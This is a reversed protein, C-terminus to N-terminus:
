NASRSFRIVSVYARTMLDASSGPLRRAAREWAERRGSAAPLVSALGTAATSAAPVGAALGLLDLDEAALGLGAALTGRLAADVPAAGRGTGALATGRVPLAIGGTPVVPGWALALGGATTVTGDARTGACVRCAVSEPDGASATNAAAEAAKM